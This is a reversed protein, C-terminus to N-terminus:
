ILKKNRKCQAFTVSCQSDVDSQYYLSLSIRMHSIITLERLRRRESEFLLLKMELRVLPYVSSISFPWMIALYKMYTINYMM